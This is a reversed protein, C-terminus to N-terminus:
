HKGRDLMANESVSGDCSQWLDIVLVNEGLLESRLERGVVQHTKLQSNHLLHLCFSYHSFHGQASRKLFVCVFM